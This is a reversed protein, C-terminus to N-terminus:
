RAKGQDYALRAQEPTLELKHDGIQLTYELKRETRGYKHERQAERVLFPQERDALVAKLQGGDLSTRLLGLTTDNLALRTASTRTASYDKPSGGVYHIFENPPEGTVSSVSEREAGVIASGQERKGEFVRRRLISTEGEPRLITEQRGARDKSHFSSDSYRTRGGNASRYRVEDRHANYPRERLESALRKIRPNRIQSIVHDIRRVHEEAREHTPDSAHAAGAFLSAGLIVLSARRLLSPMTNDFQM